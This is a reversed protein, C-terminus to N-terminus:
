ERYSLVITEGAASSARLGAGESVASIFAATNGIAFYGSVRITGIAPDALRIPTKSYRNVETIVQELPEDRFSVGGESWSTARALIAEDAQEIALSASTTDIIRSGAGVLLSPRKSQQLDAVKVRGETVVVSVEDRDYLRIAFRTGVATTITTGARVEFPRDADHAVAFLAEGELLRISRSKGDFEVELKTRTNLTVRSGDALSVIRSEGVGTAFSEHYREGQLWWPITVALFLVSAAIAGILTRRAFSWESTSTEAKAEVEALTVAWALAHQDLLDANHPDSRLWAHLQAREDASLPGRDMRAIWRAALDEPSTPHELRLVNTV